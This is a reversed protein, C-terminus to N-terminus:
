AAGGGAGELSRLVSGRAEPYAELACLLTTRLEIWEASLHLNLTPSTQIIQMVKAQLELAKLAKDCAYLATRYDEGEEAAGKLRQIDRIERALATELDRAEEREVSEKAKTLLEPIHERRHRRVSIETLGYQSAVRRNGTGCVLEV